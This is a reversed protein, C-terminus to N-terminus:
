GALALVADPAVVVGIGPGTPVPFGEPGGPLPERLISDAVEYTTPQYEFLALNGLAASVHVGAALAVGLGTSHHPAVQVHHAAALEAVSLLETIGTRAVDPQALGLARRGLWHAFEYRNRLSEGVAIPLEARRALERHGEVDEPALPAELFLAGREALGHALRVAQPVDYVWHADVAVKLGSAAVADVTALDEEVGHGLHLKVRTAGRAAWERALEAREADTPRPLGSVYVPVTDHFAGGILEAVSRGTIRGALDWLAIDVAALADAQHGVLHGRERMLGTLKEWLPRIRTPDEGLLVPALLRDVIAAPVEPAVPALAEGWGVTGDDCTIRVLLTEFRASYLSRWPPRLFYGGDRDPTGPGTEQRAGLYAERHSVKVPLATVETIKPKM